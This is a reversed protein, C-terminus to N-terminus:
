IFCKCCVSSVYVQLMHTYGNCCICVLDVKTVDLYFMHLMCRFRMFCVTAVYASRSATAWHLSTSVAHPLAACPVLSSALRPRCSAHAPPALHPACVAHPPNPAVMRPAPARPALRTWHLRALRSIKKPFHSARSAPVCPALRSAYPRSARSPHRTRGTRVSLCGSLLM